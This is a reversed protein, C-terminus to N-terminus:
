APVPALEFEQLFEASKCPSARGQDDTVVFDGPCVTYFHAKVDIRGHEGFPRNCVKCVRDAPVQPNHYSRVVWPAAPLEDFREYVKAEVVCEHSLKKRYKAM